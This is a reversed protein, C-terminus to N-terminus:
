GTHARVYSYPMRHCAPQGSRHILARIGDPSMARIAHIAPALLFSAADIKKAATFLLLLTLVCRLLAFQFIPPRSGAPKYFM